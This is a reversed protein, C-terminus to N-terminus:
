GGATSMTLSIGAVNEVTEAAVVVIAGGAVTAVEDDGVGGAGLGAEVAGFLM